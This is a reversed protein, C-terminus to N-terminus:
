VLGLVFGELVLAARGGPVHAPRALWGLVLQEPVPEPAGKSRAKAGGKDQGVSPEAAFLVDGRAQSVVQGGDKLFLLFTKEGRGRDHLAFRFFQANKAFSKRQASQ